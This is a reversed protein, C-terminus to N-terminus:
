EKPVYQLYPAAENLVRAISPRQKLRELYAALKPFDTLPVRQASYFLAPLAACDAMSFAAGVAWPGKFDQELVGYATRLQDKAQAIATNSREPSLIENAIRQMHNQLHLDYLRDRFRVERAADAADPIFRTAGRYHQELYEIVISAEAVLTGRDSDRLVPMKGIPWIQKFAAWSTEDDLMSFEFPTNNEYLAILAKWCYSSLPHAYLTLM